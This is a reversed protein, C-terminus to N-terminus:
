IRITSDEKSCTILFPRQKCIDMSNISSNHFGDYVYKLAVKSRIDEIDQEEEHLDM